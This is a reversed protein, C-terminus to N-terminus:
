EIQEGQDQVHVRVEMKWLSPVLIRLSPPLTYVCFLKHFDFSVDVWAKDFEM